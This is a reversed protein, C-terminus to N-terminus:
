NAIKLQSLSYDRIKQAKFAKPFDPSSDSLSLTSARQTQESWAQLRLPNQLFFRIFESIERRPSTIEQTTAFGWITLTQAKSEGAVQWLVPFFNEPLFKLNAFDNALLSVLENIKPLPQSTTSIKAIWDSPGFVLDAKGAEAQFALDNSVVHVQIQYGTSNEFDYITQQPVLRAESFLVLLPQTKYGFFQHWKTRYAEVSFGIAFGIL